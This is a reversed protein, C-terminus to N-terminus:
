EDSLYGQKDYEVANIRLDTKAKESLTHEPWNRYDLYAGAGIAQNFYLSFDKLRPDRFALKRFLNSLFTGIPTFNECVDSDEQYMFRDSRGYATQVGDVWNYFPKGNNEYVNITKAQKFNTWVALDSICLFDLCERPHETIQTDSDKLHKEIIDIPNSKKNKWSHSHCILGYIIPSYLEKKYDSIHLKILKRIEKANEISKKIHSAKLTNKCEFAAVVGATLYLKKDLLHKPYFPHLIIVDIQPSAIGNENLLRGKTVVQYDPPLWNKFITAWNEEGQDGATGPDETSRKQIRKYEDSIQRTLSHMFDILDNTM